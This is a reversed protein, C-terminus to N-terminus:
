PILGVAVSQIGSEFVRLHVELSALGERGLLGGRGASAEFSVGGDISFGIVEGLLRLYDHVAASDVEAVIPRQSIRFIPCLSSVIRVNILADLLDAFFVLLVDGNLAATRFVRVDVNTLLVHHLSASRSATVGVVSVGSLVPM